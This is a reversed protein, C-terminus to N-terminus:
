SDDETFSYCEGVESTHGDPNHLQVNFKLKHRIKIGREEVDQVCKRLTKPLEIHRSFEYGEQEENLIEPDEGNDVVHEDEAITRQNKYTNTFDSGNEPEITFDHYEQVQTTVIGIRLGKLLSVLRFDVRISTGFVVAKTPTSISYEIKNTWINEM